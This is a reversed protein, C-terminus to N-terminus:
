VTEMQTVAIYAPLLPPCFRGRQIPAAHGSEDLLKVVIRM